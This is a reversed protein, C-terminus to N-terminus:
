EPVQLYFGPEPVLYYLHSDRNKIIPWDEKEAEM